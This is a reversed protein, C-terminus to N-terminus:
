SYLKRYESPTLGTIRKFIKSFYKIESYGVEEAVEVLSYDTAALLQKANKIRLEMIYEMFNKGTEKKFLSSFYAPNFGVKASISELNLQQNYHDAIYQKAIRIPKVEKLQTYEVYEHINQCMQVSLGPFIEERALFTDYLRLFYEKDPIQYEGKLKAASHLFIGVVEQYCEYILSGSNPAASIRTDLQELGVRLGEIDLREVSDALMNRIGTDIIQRLSKEAPWEQYELLYREPNIIREQMSRDALNMSDYVGALERSVPGISIYVKLERFIHKLNLIDLRMKKLQKKIEEWCFDRTNVLCWVCRKSVKILLEDSCSELREKLMQEIKFLVVSMEADSIFHGKVFPQIKFIGYYGEVFDCQYEENVAQFDKLLTEEHNLLMDSLLSNKVKVRSSDALSKQGLLYNHKERIKTLTTTLEKKELPKLLYDEVGYHIANQAYEFHNYGSIIIFHIEPFVERVQRIMELGDCNPMRIDTIVIDPVYKMIYEKAALGDHLMEVVELELEQWDVLHYILQCVKVEDDVILVKLIEEAGKPLSHM